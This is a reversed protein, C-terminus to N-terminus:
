LVPISLRRRRRIERRHWLRRVNRILMVTGTAVAAIAGVRKIPEPGLCVRPDMGQLKCGLRHLQRDLSRRTTSIQTKIEDASVAM